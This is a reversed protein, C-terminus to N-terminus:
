NAQKFSIRYVWPNSKWSGDGNISDWLQAYHYSLPGALYSPIHGVPCDGSCGEAKADAESIDQLREVRVETVELTIRSAWQPMHISPSFKHGTWIPPTALGWPILSGDAKYKQTGDRFCVYNAESPRCDLGLGKCPIFAERVWLRDGSGGYRCKLVPEAGMLERVAWVPGVPRFTNTGVGNSMWGYDSGSKARVEEVTPPQPKVIRRTQTKRGDLIARVMEDSFLIPLTRM